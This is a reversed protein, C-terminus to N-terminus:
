DVSPVSSWQVTGSYRTEDISGFRVTATQEMGDLAFAFLANDIQGARHAAATLTNDQPGLGLIGEQFFKNEAVISM